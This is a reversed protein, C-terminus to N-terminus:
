RRSVRRRAPFIEVATTVIEDADLDFDSLKTV